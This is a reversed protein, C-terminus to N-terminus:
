QLLRFMYETIVLMTMDAVMFGETETDTIYDIQLEICPM